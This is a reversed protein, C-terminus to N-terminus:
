SYLLHTSEFNFTQYIFIVFLFSIIFLFNIFKDRLLIHRINVVVLEERRDSVNNKETAGAKFKKNQSFVIAVFMLKCWTVISVSSFPIFVIFTSM